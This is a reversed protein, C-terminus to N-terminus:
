TCPRTEAFPACAYTMRSKVEAKDMYSTCPFGAPVENKTDAKVQSIHRLAFTSAPQYYQNFTPNSFAPFFPFPCKASM